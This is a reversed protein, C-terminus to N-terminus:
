WLRLNFKNYLKSLTQSAGNGPSEGGGDDDSFGSGQMQEVASTFRRSSVEDMDLFRFAQAAPLGDAGRHLFLIDATVKGFVTILDM